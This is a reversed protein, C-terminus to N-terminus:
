KLVKYLILHLNLFILDIKFIFILGYSILHGVFLLHLVIEIHHHSDFLLLNKIPMFSIKQYNYLIDWFSQLM